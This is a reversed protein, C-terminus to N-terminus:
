LVGQIKYFVGIGRLFDFFSEPNITRSLLYLSREGFYNKGVEM